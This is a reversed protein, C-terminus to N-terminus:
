TWSATGSGFGTGSGNESAREIELGTASLFDNLKAKASNLASANGTETLYGSQLPSTLGMASSSDIVFRCYKESQMVSVIM